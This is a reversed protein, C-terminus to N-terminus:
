APLRDAEAPPHRTVRQRESLDTQDVHVRAAPQREGDRQDMRGPMRRRITHDHDFTLMRDAGPLEALM